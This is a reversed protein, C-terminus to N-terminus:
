AAIGAMRLPLDIRWCLSSTITHRVRRMAAPVHWRIIAPQSLSLNSVVSGMHELGPIEVDLPGCIGITAKRDLVMQPVAGLAEMYLHLSVTPFEDRFAKLADVVRCPTLM